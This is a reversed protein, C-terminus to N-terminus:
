SAALIRHVKKKGAKLLIGEATVHDCGIRTDFEAVREENV